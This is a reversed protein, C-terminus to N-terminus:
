LSSVKMHLALHPAGHYFSRKKPSRPGLRLPGRILNAFKLFNNQRLSYGNEWKSILPKFLLDRFNNEIWLSQLSLPILIALQSLTAPVRTHFPSALSSAPFICLFTWLCNLLFVFLFYTTILEVLCNLLTVFHKGPNSCHPQSLTPGVDLVSVHLSTGDEPFIGPLIIEEESM